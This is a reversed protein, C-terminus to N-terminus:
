LAVKRLFYKSTETAHQVNAKQKTNDCTLNILFHTKYRRKTKRTKDITTKHKPFWDWFEGTQTSAICM